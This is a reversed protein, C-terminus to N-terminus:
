YHLDRKIYKISELLKLDKVSDDWVTNYMSFIEEFKSQIGNERIDELEKKLDEIDWELDACENEKSSLDDKLDSVKKKLDKIKDKLDFIEQELEEM